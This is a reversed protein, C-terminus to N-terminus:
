TVASDGVRVVRLKASRSRPNSAKEGDTATLPKNTLRTLLSRRALSAFARKVLRDELSHFSIVAVRAGDNLWGGSSGPTGPTGAEQVRSVAQAVQDLLSQLAGLEDNVAIRFAMFTRTAPHMRSSRARPGYAERVLGALQSTTQIPEAQRSQVLKRAIKRSFPEEGYQFILNALEREPLMAILEAATAGTRQDLRMDLPGEAQFSFGRSPDDLHLSSVGLDALVIDARINRKALHDGITVFSDCILEFPSSIEELRSRAYELNVEDLDFGILRGTPGVAEALAAAHGGRGLTCDVAIEGPQPVLLDMTEALLVPVHGHQAAIEPPDCREPPDDRPNSEPSDPPMISM